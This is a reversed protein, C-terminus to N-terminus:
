HIIAPSDVYWTTGDSEDACSRLRQDTRLEEEARPTYRSDPYTNILTQLTVRAVDCQQQDAVREARMWLIEDSPRSDTTDAWPMCSTLVLAPLVVALTARM